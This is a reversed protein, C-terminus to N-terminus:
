GMKVIDFGATELDKWFGPYSKNVVGPNEIIMGPHRLAATSFAMAMRHDQYTHIVKIEPIDAIKKGNWSIWEAEPDADLGYGLRGLEMQLPQIRDSEKIKLTQTGEMRFPVDMMCCLVAMTQVLDPNDRFDFEFRGPRAPIRRLTIGMDNFRTEVGFPVFMEPLISDGQRSDQRLGMIEFDTEDSLAAMAYWYGAASWDGEVELDKGTYPHHPVDIRKREISVPIGMGHMLKGTLHIYSFSVAENELQISLGNELSPGIMMLASIYQSSISSDINISGGALERGRIDLPPYGENKLYRIDAGLSLLADVLEGIPRQQMRDSGTLTYRGPKLSLYATLFRMATGAHGIDIVGEGSGLAKKLVTTDDSESLNKLEGEEGALANLILLRNSISKSSPLRIIGSLKESDKGLRYRM